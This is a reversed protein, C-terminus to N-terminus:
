SPGRELKLLLQFLHEREAPTLPQLYRVDCAAQLAAAQAQLARGASTPQIAYARRDAPDRGREVLGKAELEDILRVMTSRDIRLMAGLEHQPRPARDALLTLVGYHRASIGLPELSENGLRGATEAARYLRFAM